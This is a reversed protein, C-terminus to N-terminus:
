KEEDEFPNDDKDLDLEDFKESDGEGGINFDPDDNIDTIAYPAEIEEFPDDDSVQRDFEEIADTVPVSELDDASVDQEITAAELTLADSKSEINVDLEGPLEIPNEIKSEKLTDESATSEVLNKELPTDIIDFPLEEPDINKEPNSENNEDELSALAEKEAQTYQTEAEEYEDNNKSIRKFLWYGGVLFVIIPLSAMAIKLITLSDDQITPEGIIDDGWQDEIVPEENVPEQMESPPMEKQMSTDNVGVQPMVLKNFGIVVDPDSLEKLIPPMTAPKNMESTEGNLVTEVVKTLMVKANSAIPFNLQLQAIKEQETNVLGRKYSALVEFDLLQIGPLEFQQYEWYGHDTKEFDVMKNNVLAKISISSSEISDDNKYVRLLYYEQPKSIGLSEISFASRLVINKLLKREFTPSTLNVQISYEGQKLFYDDDFIFEDLQKNLRKSFVMEGEHQIDVSVDVVSLLTDDMIRDSGEEPNVDGTLYVGSLWAAFEPIQHSYLNSPIDSVNLTLDSIVSVRSLPDLNGEIKWQGYKPQKVTILEYTKLSKWKVDNRPTKQDILQGNPSRLLINEGAEHFILATYEDITQDILFQNDVLSVQETSVLRDFAKLFIPTLDAAEYATEAVGKTQISLQQLLSFDAQDSLAITHIIAQKQKFNPLIKELIRNRENQNLTNDQSVDVMGDTLLIFHTGPEYNAFEFDYASTVLAQALNTRQGLNNISDIKQKAQDRWNQDVPDHKVLMNVFKGFTWVGVTSDGPLLDILLELAPQRLNNPDNQKMSGSIDILIRVDLPEDNQASVASSICMLYISLCIAIRKFRFVVM